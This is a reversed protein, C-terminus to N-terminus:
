KKKFKINTFFNTALSVYIVIPILIIGIFNGITSAMTLLECILTMTIVVVFFWLTFLIMEKLNLGNM